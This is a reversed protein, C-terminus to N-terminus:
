ETIAPAERARQKWTDRQLELQRIEDRLKKRTALSEERAAAVGRMAERLQTMADKRESRAARLESKLDAIRETQRELELEGARQVAASDIMRALHKLNRELNLPSGSSRPSSLDRAMSWIDSAAEIAIESPQKPM